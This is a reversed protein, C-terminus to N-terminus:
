WAEPAKTGTVQLDKDKNSFDMYREPGLGWRWHESEFGLEQSEPGLWIWTGIVVTVTSTRQIYIVDYCCHLFYFM